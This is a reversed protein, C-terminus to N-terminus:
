LERHKIQQSFMLLAYQVDDDKYSETFTDVFASSMQVGVETLVFAVALLARQTLSCEEKNLYPLLMVDMDSSENVHIEMEEFFHQWLWAKLNSLILPINSGSPMHHAKMDWWPSIESVDRVKEQNMPAYSIWEGEIEGGLEHQNLFTCQESYDMRGLMPLVFSARYFPNVVIQGALNVEYLSAFHAVTIDLSVQTAVVIGAELAEELWTVQERQIPLLWPGCTHANVYRADDLLPRAESGDRQAFTVLPESDHKPDVISYVFHGEKLHDKVWSIVNM